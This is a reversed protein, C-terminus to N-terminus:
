NKRLDKYEYRKIYNYYSLESILNLEFIIEDKDLEIKLKYIKNEEKLEYEKKLEIGKMFEPKTTEQEDM